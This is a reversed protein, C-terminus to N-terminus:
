PSPRHTLPPYAPGIEEELSVMVDEYRLLTLLHKIMGPGSESDCIIRRVQGLM